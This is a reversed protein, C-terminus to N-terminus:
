EVKFFPEFDKDGKLGWSGSGQTTSFWGGSHCDSWLIKRFKTNEGRVHPFEVVATLVRMGDGWGDRVLQAGWIKFGKAEIEKLAECALNEHYNIYSQPFSRDGLRWMDMEHNISDFSSM